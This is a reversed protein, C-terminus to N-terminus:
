HHLLVDPTVMVHDQEPVRSFHWLQTDEQQRHTKMHANRSKVKLFVRHFSAITFWVAVVTIWLYSSTETNSEPSPKSEVSTAPFSSLQILIEVPPAPPLVEWLLRVWLCPWRPRETKLRLAVSCGSIPRPGRKKMWRSHSVSMKGWFLHDTIVYKNWIWKEILFCNIILLIALCVGYIKVEMCSM